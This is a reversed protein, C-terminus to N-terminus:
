QLGSATCGRVPAAFQANTFPTLAVASIAAGQAYHNLADLESRSLSQPRPDM